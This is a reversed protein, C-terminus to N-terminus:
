GSVKFFIAKLKSFQFPSQKKPSERAIYKRLNVNEDKVLGLASSLQRIVERKEEDKQTLQNRQMLNEERLRELEERLKMIENDCVERSVSDKKLEQDVQIEDEQEPDQKEKGTQAENKPEPDEVEKIEERLKMMEDDCAESSVSDEALEQGVQIENEWESVEDEKMEQDVEPEHIEDEQEPDDVESEAYDETDSTGSYSYYTQDMVNMLKQPKHKFPSGYTTLLRTGTESKVQDYREALSRHARYFDEVMSILEPRKKYYMEARQAFSDADEEILKLMAKAKEDLETLTSHLWPSRKSSNHSDFWWWRSTDKATM